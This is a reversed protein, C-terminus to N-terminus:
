QEAKQAPRVQLDDISICMQAFAGLFRLEPPTLRGGHRPTQRVDALKCVIAEIERVRAAPVLSSCEALREVKLAAVRRPQSINQKFPSAGALGGLHNGVRPPGM